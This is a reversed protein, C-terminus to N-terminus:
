NDLLKLNGAQRKTIELHCNAEEESTRCLLSAYQPFDCSIKCWKISGGILRTVVIFM